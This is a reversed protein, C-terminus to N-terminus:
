ELASSNIAWCRPLRGSWRTSSRRHTAAARRAACADRPRPIVGPSGTRAPHGARGSQTDPFASTKTSSSTSAASGTRTSRAAAVAADRRSRRAGTARVGRPPLRGRARATPRRSADGAHTSSKPEPGHAIRTISPSSWRPTHPRTSGPTPSRHPGPRLRTRWSKVTSRCRSSVTAAADRSVGLHSPGSRRSIAASSCSMPLPTPSSWAAAAASMASRTAALIPNAGSSMAVTTQSTSRCRSRGRRHGRTAVDVIECVVCCTALWTPVISRSRNSAASVSASPRAVLAVAHSGTSRAGSRGGRRVHRADGRLIPSPRRCRRRERRRVLSARRISPSCRM